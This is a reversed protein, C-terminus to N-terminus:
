EDPKREEKDAEIVTRIEGRSRRRFAVEEKDETHKDGERKIRCGGCM